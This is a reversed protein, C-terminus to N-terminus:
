KAVVLTYNKKGQQLLLFKDNLLDKTTITIDESVKTKNISIGGNSILKRLEGKSKFTPTQEVGISSLKVGDIFQAKEVEYTPVGDFVSLLTADDLTELTDKTSKGFLVESAAIAVELDKKSHVMVTVEEALRKQLLRLHPAKAHEAIISEIEERSLLTFMKIFREADADAQNLWFQYFQYPTTLNPDLWINNNGESKGFKTGDAKTVLPWVFACPTADSGLKKRIIECGTLINGKQDSGGIQIKCGHEKYLHYHDHGQILQYTFETFSLGSGDRELRRKVSEKAIMYNVTILKGVERAFDLFSFDKMWDYNNVMIAANPASSNFDIMKSLQKKINEANFNIEDMTLLKREEAKFSPDGLSATAGGVLVIPKHGRQQLLRAVVFALLHGVHLSPGTPDTGVYFTTSGENLTKEIPGIGDMMLGRWKLEEILNM